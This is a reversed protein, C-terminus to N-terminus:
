MKKGKKLFADWKAKKPQPEAEKEGRLVEEFLNDLDELGESNWSAIDLESWKRKARVQPSGPAGQPSCQDDEVWLPLAIEREKGKGKGGKAATKTVPVVGNVRVAARQKGKNSKLPIEQEDDSDNGDESIGDTELFERRWSSVDRVYALVKGNVDTVLPVDGQEDAELEQDETFHFM